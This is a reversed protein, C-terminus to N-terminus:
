KDELSSDKRLILEKTQIDYLLSVRDDQSVKMCDEQSLRIEGGEKIIFAAFLTFLFEDDSLDM